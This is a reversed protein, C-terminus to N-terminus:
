AQGHPSHEDHIMPSLSIGALEESKCATSKFGEETGQWMSIEMPSNGLLAGSKWLLLCHASTTLPLSILKHSLWTGRAWNLQWSPQPSMHLSMQLHLSKRGIESMNNDTPRLEGGCLQRVIPCSSIGLNLPKLSLYLPRSFM